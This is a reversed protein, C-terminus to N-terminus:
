VNMVSYFPQLPQATQRRAEWWPSGSEIGPLTALGIHSIGCTNWKTNVYDRDRNSQEFKYSLAMAIIAVTRLLSEVNFVRKAGAPLSRRDLGKCEDPLCGTQRRAAPQRAQGQAREPPLGVRRRGSYDCAAELQSTVYGRGRCRELSTACLQPFSSQPQHVVTCLPISGILRSAKSCILKCSRSPSLSGYRQGTIRNDQHIHSSKVICAVGRKTRGIGDLPSQPVVSKEHRGAGDDKGRCMQSEPEIGDHRPQVMRHGHVYKGPACFIKLYVPSRSTQHEVVCSTPGTAPKETFSRGPPSINTQGHRRPDSCRPRTGPSTLHRRRRDPRRRRTPSLVRVLGLVRTSRGASSVRIVRPRSHQSQPPLSTLSLAARHRWTTLVDPTAYVLLVATLPFLSFLDASNLQSTQAARLLSTKLASTPSSLRFHLLALVFPRLSLSIGSFIRRGIADDLVIGVQSFGSPGRRTNFRNRRTPLRATELSLGDDGGIILPFISTHM